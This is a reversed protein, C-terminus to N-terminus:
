WTTDQILSSFWLKMNGCLLLISAKIDKIDSKIDKIDSKIEKFETQIKALESKVENVEWKLEGYLGLQNTKSQYRNEFEQEIKEFLLSKM